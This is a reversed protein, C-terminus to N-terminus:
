GLSQLFALLKRFARGRHSFRNKEERPIEAFTKGFPEYLFIPDYGFGSSGRPVDLLVGEVFDSIVALVHQNRAIAVVCVFRARRDTVNKDRLEGLLKRIRDSNSAGPGAYRASNVGPAGGLAPVVLGSDDALVPVDTFQSFHLAKGAANEAFTPASEDFPPLSDFKPLLDMEVTSVAALSQYERLKGSNSSALLLKM